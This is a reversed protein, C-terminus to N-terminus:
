DSVDDDGDEDSLDASGELHETVLELAEHLEDTEVGFRQKLAASWASRQHQRLTGAMRRLAECRKRAGAAAHLTTCVSAVELEEATPPKVLAQPFTVPLRLEKSLFSQRRAAPALWQDLIHNQQYRTYNDINDAYWQCTFPLDTLLRDNISYVSNIYDIQDKDFNPLRFKTKVPHPFPFWDDIRPDIYYFLIFYLPWDEFTFSKFDPETGIWPLRTKSLDLQFKGHEPDYHFTDPATLNLALFEQRAQASARLEQHLGFDLDSLEVDKAALAELFYEPALYASFLAVARSSSIEVRNRVIDKVGRREVAAKAETDFTLGHLCRLSAELLRPAQCPVEACRALVDVGGAVCFERPVTRSLKELVRLAALATGSGHRRLVALLAEVGKLEAFEYHVPLCTLFTTSKHMEKDYLLALLGHCIRQVHEPNGANIALASLASGLTAEGPPTGVPVPGQVAAVAVQPLAATARRVPMDPLGSGLNKKRRLQDAAWDRDMETDHSYNM